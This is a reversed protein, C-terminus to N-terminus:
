KTRFDQEQYAVLPLYDPRIPSFIDLNLVVEDGVPEAFHEISPPVRVMSGPGMEIVEDGLHFLVRGQIIMVIQEFDHSHPNLAMGPACWNMVCITNEGRFGVRELGPRVVEKTLESWNYAKLRKM